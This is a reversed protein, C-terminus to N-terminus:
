DPKMAKISKAKRQANKLNLAKLYQCNPREVLLWTEMTSSGKASYTCFISGPKWEAEKVEMTTLDVEFTLLGQKDKM